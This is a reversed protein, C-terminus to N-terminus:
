LDLASYFYRANMVNRRNGRSQHRREDHHDTITGSEAATSVDLLPRHHTAGAAAGRAITVREVLRRVVVEEVETTRLRVRAAVVTRVLGEVEEEAAAATVRSVIVIVTVTGIVSEATVTVVIEATVTEDASCIVDDDLLQVDDHKLEGIM